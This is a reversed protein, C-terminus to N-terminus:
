VCDKGKHLGLGKGLMRRAYVGCWLVWSSDVDWDKIKVVESVKEFGKLGSLYCGMHAASLTTAKVGLEAIVMRLSSQAFFWFDLVERIFVTAKAVSPGLLVSVSLIIARISAMVMFISARYWSSWDKHIEESCCKVLDVLFLELDLILTLNASLDNWYGTPIALVMSMSTPLNVKGLIGHRNPQVPYYQQQATYAGATLSFIHHNPATHQAAPIPSAYYVPTALAAHSPQYRM